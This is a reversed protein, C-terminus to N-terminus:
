FGNEQVGDKEMGLIKKTRKIKYDVVKQIEDDTVNFYLGIQEAMIYVDALEEIISERKGKKRLHKCLEKQLESLEELAVVLQDQGNQSLVNYCFDQDIRLM